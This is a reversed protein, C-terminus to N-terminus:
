LVGAGLVSSAAGGVPVPMRVRVTGPVHVVPESDPELEPVVAPGRAAVAAERAVWAAVLFSRVCSDVALADAGWYTGGLLGLLVTDLPEDYMLQGFAGQTISDLQSYLQDRVAHLAGCTFVFHVADEEPGGCAPCVCILLHSGAVALMHM